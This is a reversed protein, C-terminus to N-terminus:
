FSVNASKSASEVDRGKLELIEAETIKYCAKRSRNFESSNM